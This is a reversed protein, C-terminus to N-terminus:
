PAEGLIAARLQRVEFGKLLYADADDAFRETGPPPYMTTIVVRVGSCRTRILHAAELGGMGPMRVDLVVVDPSQAEALDVAERGDAGEGVIEVEPLLELLARLAQRAPRQDDAIVVRVSM